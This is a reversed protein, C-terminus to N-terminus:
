LEYGNEKLYNKVKDYYPVSERAGTGTCKLASVASAFHCCKKYDFGKVVGAAFAGHFVDGAGNSDVVEAPYCPYTYIENGDYMIGGDKGCTIVVVQPNYTEYLKKAAEEVSKCKTFKSAFEYSPILIDTLKLLEEVGDYLGGADYLVKVGNKRAVSAAEVAASLENGDVMLLEANIIANKQSSNLKLPPLNGKDFVCTRSGKEKSLWIVSTFSQCDPIIKINDVGVGYKKFDNYLFRGGNDDSLVGIYSADVGLKSVAVLGTGVPGGGANKTSEAKLKTDENPYIPLTILTDMVCAGIGVVKSM